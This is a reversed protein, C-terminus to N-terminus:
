TENLNRAHEEYKETTRQWYDDEQKFLEEWKEGKTNEGPNEERSEGWSKLFGDQRAYEPQKSTKVAKIYNTRQNITINETWFEGHENTGEREIVKLNPDVKAFKDTEKSRFEKM